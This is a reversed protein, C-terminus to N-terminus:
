DWSKLKPWMAALSGFKARRCLFVPIHRELAYPNDSSGVYSVQEFLQALRERRDGVVILCNGSYSRPGWLYYTQHGSLSAPLGYRPGFFDIAGAEGYNQAFIGCDSRERIPIGNWGQAVVGVLEEWGFQDAYHQPLAASAHSHESHPLAFPLNAQYRLFSEIPLVPLIIPSLLAGGTLLVIVVVAQLWKLRGIASELAVAGAALLMPYVPTLYYNKGKLVIFLTLAILYSWGLAQYRRLRPWLLLAVVGAAWLPFSFPHLLLIQQAVYQGASLHVDRGSARINHMLEVFPWHYHVNWLLNPLFFLVALLGGLLLWKSLM